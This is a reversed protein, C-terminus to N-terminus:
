EINFLEKISRLFSLKEEDSKYYYNHKHLEISLHSLKAVVWVTGDGGHRISSLEIGKSTLYNLLEEYTPPSSVAEIDEKVINYLDEIFEYAHEIVQDSQSIAEECTIENDKM